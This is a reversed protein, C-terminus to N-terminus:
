ILTLKNQSFEPTKKQHFCRFFYQTIESYELINSLLIFIQNKKTIFNYKKQHVIVSNRHFILLSVKSIQYLIKSANSTHM